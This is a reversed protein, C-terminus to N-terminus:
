FGTPKWNIEAIISDQKKIKKHKKTKDHCKYCIVQLNSRKDYIPKIKKGISYTPVNIRLLNDKHSAVSKKHHIELLRPEFKKHCKQCRFGVEEKLKRKQTSTLTRDGVKTIHIREIKIKPLKIQKQKSLNLDSIDGYRKKENM